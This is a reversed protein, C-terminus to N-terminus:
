SRSVRGTAHADIFNLNRIAQILSKLERSPLWSYKPSCITAEPASARKPEVNEAPISDGGKWSLRPTCEPTPFDTRPSRRSLKLPGIRPPQRQCSLLDSSCLWSQRHWSSSLTRRIPIAASGSQNLLFKRPLCNAAVFFPGGASRSGEEKAPSLSLPNTPPPQPSQPPQPPRRLM